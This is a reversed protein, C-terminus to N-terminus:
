LCRSDVGLLAFPHNLALRSQHYIIFDPSFNKLYNSSICHVSFDGEQADGGLRGSISHAEPYETSLSLIQEGKNAVKLVIQVFLIKCIVAPTAPELLVRVGAKGVSETTKSFSVPSSM